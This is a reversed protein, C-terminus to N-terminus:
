QKKKKLLKYLARQTLVAHSVHKVVTLATMQTVDSVKGGGRMGALREAEIRDRDSDAHQIVADLSLRENAAVAHTLCHSISLYFFPSEFTM